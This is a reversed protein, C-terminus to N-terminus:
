RFSERRLTESVFEEMEPDFVNRACVIGVALGGDVVPMHRFGRQQMRLLAHGYSRDPEVTVPNPTMVDALRTVQPERGAALVRYVADRESFIGVVANAEVIVLAGVQSRAMLRAADGVTTLSGAVILRERGMVQGVRQNFM